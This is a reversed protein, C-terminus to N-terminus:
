VASMRLAAFSRRIPMQLQEQRQENKATMRLAAFSGRIPGQQLWTGWMEVKLHTIGWGSARGWCVVVRFRLGSDDQACRLVGTNARPGRRGVVLGTLGRGGRFGVREVLYRQGVQEV